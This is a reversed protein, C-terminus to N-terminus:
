ESAVAGARQAVFASMCGECCFYVTSGEHEVSPTTAVAAVTM